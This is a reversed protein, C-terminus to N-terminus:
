SNTTRSSSYAEGRRCLTDDQRSWAGGKWGCVVLREIAASKTATKSQQQKLRWEYWGVGASVMDTDTVCVRVMMDDGGSAERSAGRGDAKEGGMDGELMKEAEEDGEVGTREM